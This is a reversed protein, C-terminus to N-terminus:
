QAPDAHASVVASDAVLGADGAEPPLHIMNGFQYDEQLIEFKALEEEPPPQMGWVASNKWGIAQMLALNEATKFSAISSDIVPIYAGFKETLVASLAAYFGVELTCGLIISEAHDDQVAAIAADQLLEATKKPDRHFDEVGLGVARFGALRDACGYEYVTQKMQDQWKRQGIIIAFNNALGLAVQISSQCPAVIATTGNPGTAAERAALLAPDYFCGIVMAHFGHNKCYRAAKVTDNIIFSEYTRYELNTIKPPVSAPDMSAVYADTGPYKFDRIMAAFIADFDGNGVPNLYMVKIATSLSM